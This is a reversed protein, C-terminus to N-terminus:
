EEGADHEIIRPQEQEILVAEYVAEWARRGDNIEFQHTTPANLGLLSKYSEVAKILFHGDAPARTELYKRSAVRVTDELLDALHFRREAITEELAPGALRYSKLIKHVAEYSLGMIEGIQRYSKGEVVRLRVIEDNRTQRALEKGRM